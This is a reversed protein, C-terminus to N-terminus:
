LIPTEAIHIREHSKLHSTVLFKKDCCKCAYPNESTHIRKHLILEYSQAFKKQFRLLCLNKVELFVKM